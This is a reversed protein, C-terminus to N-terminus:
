LDDQPSTTTPAASGESDDPEAPTIPTRHTLFLNALRGLYPNEEPALRALYRGTTGLDAHGLYAQIQSVKAGADELGRAYTHRLAHVKSTGLRAACIDAIASVSLPHGFTGNRALSIWLPPLPQETPNARDNLRKAGADATVIAPLASPALLPDDRGDEGYLADIWAVLAQAAAGHAGHLPLRLQARKGGKVRPWVLTIHGRAGRRITVHERRMGALEALRRGTHLGLLLLAYDRLGSPTARDIAGLRADLDEYDLPEAGGYSEVHRREVRAIPNEGRLLGQKLTYNYFSSLVALQRNFTAPSVPRAPRQRPATPHAVILETILETQANMPRGHDVRRNGRSGGHRGPRAAYAQALTALATIRTSALDEAQEKTPHMSPLREGQTGYFESGDASVAARVRRPDAADLDLGRARLLARFEQITRSYAALTEASGSRGHKAHLWAAIAAEVPATALPESQGWEDATDDSGGKEHVVRQEADGTQQVHEGDDIM